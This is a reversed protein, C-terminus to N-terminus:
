LRVPARQFLVRHIRPDNSLAADAVLERIDDDVFLCVGAATIKGGSDEFAKAGDPCLVEPTMGLRGLWELIANAKSARQLAYM